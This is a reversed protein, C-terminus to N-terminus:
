CQNIQIREYLAVFNFRKKFGPNFLKTLSLLLYVLLQQGGNFAIATERTRFNILERFTTM